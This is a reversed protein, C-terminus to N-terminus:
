PTITTATRNGNGDLTASVVDASDALNRVIGPSSNMGSTVGAMVSVMIKIMEDFTFSGYAASFVRAFVAAVIEAVADANLAAADVAGAAFASADIGGTGIAYGTKDGVVQANADIRGSILANITAGLVKSLDIRGDGDISLLNFNTPFTIGSVSGVSGTLNGTRNGVALGTAAPILIFEDGISLAGTLAPSWTFLGTASEYDTIIATEGIRAGGLVQMMWRNNFVDDAISTLDTTAQTASLTGAVATPQYASINTLWWPASGSGLIEKVDAHAMGDSEVALTRGATTPRLASAKEITFDDIVYGAVSNGGVTGAAIQISYQKGSEFGNGSTAVITVLNLGTVGDFDVSLTIGATIQTTSDDEYACCSPTGALQTPVGSTNVTTFYKYLTTGLAYDTLAM